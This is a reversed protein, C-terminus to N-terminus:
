RFMRDKKKLTFVAPDNSGPTWSSQVPHGRHTFLDRIREAQKVSCGIAEALQHRTCGRLLLTQAIVMQTLLKDARAM